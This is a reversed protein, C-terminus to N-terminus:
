ISESNINPWLLHGVPRTVPCKIKQVDGSAGRKACLRTSEVIAHGVDCLLVGGPREILRLVLRRFPCHFRLTLEIIICSNLLLAM